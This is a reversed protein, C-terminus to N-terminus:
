YLGYLLTPIERHHLIIESFKTRKKSITKEAQVVVTGSFYLIPQMVAQLCMEALLIHHEPDNQLFRYDLLILIRGGECPRRHVTSSEVKSVDLM